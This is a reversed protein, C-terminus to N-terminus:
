KIRSWLNGDEAVPANVPFAQLISFLRDGSIHCKKALKRTSIEEPYKPINNIVHVKRGEGERFGYFILDEKTM